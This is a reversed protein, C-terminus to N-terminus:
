EIGDHPFVKLKDLTIESYKAVKEGKVNCKDDWRQQYCNGTTSDVYIYTQKVDIWKDGDTNHDYGIAVLDKENNPKFVYGNECVIFMYDYTRSPDVYANEFRVPEDLKSMGLLLVVHSHNTIYLITPDFIGYETQKAYKELDSLEISRTSSYNLRQNAQYDIIIDSLAKYEPMSHKYAHMPVDILDKGEPLLTSLDIENRIAKLQLTSIGACSGKEAAFDRVGNFYRKYKNITNSYGNGSDVKVYPIRSAACPSADTNGYITLYPSYSSGGFAQSDLRVNGEVIANKMTDNRFAYKNVTVDGSLVVDELGTMYFASTDITLPRGNDRIFVSAGKLNKDEYFASTGIYEITKPININKLADCYQFAHREITVTNNLTVDTLASCGSFAWEGVLKVDLVAKKLKKSNEFSHYGVRDAKINVEEVSGCNLFCYGQMTKANVNVYQLMSCGDFAHSSILDATANIRVLGSCGSFAYSNIKDCAACSFETLDSGTFANTGIESYLPDICGSSYSNFTIDFFTSCGYFARENIRVKKDGLCISRLETCGEFASKGINAIASGGKFDVTGEYEKGYYQYTYYFPGNIGYFYINRINTQNKFANDAIAVVDKGGLQKPINLIVSDKTTKCGTIVASTNDTTYYLKVGYKEDAYPTGNCKGSTKESAASATLSVPTSRGTFVPSNSFPISVAAIACLAAITRRTKSNM